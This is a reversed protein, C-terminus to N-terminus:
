PMGSSLIRCYRSSRTRAMPRSLCSGSVELSMSRVRSRATRVRRRFQCREFRHRYDIPSWSAQLPHLVGEHAVLDYDGPRGTPDARRDDFEKSLATIVDDGHRTRRGPEVPEDASKGTNGGPRVVERMGAVGGCPRRGQIRDVHQDVGGADALDRRDLVGGVIHPPLCHCSVDDARCFQGAHQQRRQPDGASAHHEDVRSRPQTRHGSTPRRRWCSLAEPVPRSRSAPLPRVRSEPSWHRGPRRRSRVSRLIRVSRPRGYSGTVHTDGCLRATTTALM